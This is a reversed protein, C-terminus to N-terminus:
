GGDLLPLLTLRDGSRLITENTAHFGNLLIIGLHQQPLELLEVLEQVRTGELCSMDRQAFRGTKFLGVLKVNIVMLCCGCPYTAFSM